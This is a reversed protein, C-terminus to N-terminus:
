ASDTPVRGFAHCTGFTVFIGPFQFLVYRSLTNITLSCRAARISHLLPRPPKFNVPLQLVDCSWKTIHYEDPRNVCVMGNGQQERATGMGNGQQEEATGMGNRQRGWATGRGDRHQEWATGRGDGHREEVTGM